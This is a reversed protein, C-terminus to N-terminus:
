NLLSHFVLPVDILKLNDIDEFIPTLYETNDLEVINKIKKTQYCYYKNGTIYIKDKIINAIQCCFLNNNKKIKYFKEVVVDFDRSNRKVVIKKDM